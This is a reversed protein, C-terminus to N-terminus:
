VIFCLASELFKCIIWFQYAEPYVLHNYQWELSCQCAPSIPLHADLLTWCFYTCLGAGPYSFTWAGTWDPASSSSFLNAAFSRLAKTLLNIIICCHRRPAFALPRRSHQLFLMALLNLSTIRWRQEATTLYHSYATKSGRTCSPCPFTFSLVVFTTTSRFCTLLRLFSSNNIKSFLLSPSTM